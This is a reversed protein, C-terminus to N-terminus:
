EWRISFFSEHTSTIEDPNFVVLIQRRVPDWLRLNPAGNDPAYMVPLSRWGQGTLEWLPPNAGEYPVILPRQRLPHEVLLGEPGGTAVLSWGYGDHAWTEGLEFGHIVVRQHKGDWTASYTDGPPSVAPTIEYWSEQDWVWTDHHAVGFDDGGFMLVRRRVPDWVLAANYRPEPAPDPHLETWGLEDWRWLDGRTELSGQYVGDYAIGGYLLVGSGDFCFAASSWIRPTPGPLGSLATWQRGDYEHIDPGLQEDATYAVIRQRRDDWALNQIHSPPDLMEADSMAKWRPQEERCTASCGDLSTLNGDDCEEEAEREGNGCVPTADDCGRIDWACSHLCGLRGAGRGLTECTEGRLDSGDCTEFVASDVFADLGAAVGDGCRACGVPSVQCSADCTPLGRTMGFAACTAGEPLAGDCQEGSDVVGDGCRPLTCDTRCADPDYDSNHPSSYEGDDCEEGEDVVGNGCYGPPEGNPYRNPCDCAPGAGLLALSLVLLRVPERM